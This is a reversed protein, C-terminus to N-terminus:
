ECDKLTERLQEIKEEAEQIIRKNEEVNKGLVIERLNKNTSDEIFKIERRVEDASKVFLQLMEEASIETLVGDVYTYTKNMDLDQDIKIYQPNERMRETMEYFLHTVLGKKNVWIYMINDKLENWENAVFEM